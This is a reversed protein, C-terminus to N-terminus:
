GVFAVFSFGHFFVNAILGFFVDTGHRRLVWGETLFQNAIGCARNLFQEAALQRAIDADVDVFFARVVKV